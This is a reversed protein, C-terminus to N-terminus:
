AEVVAPEIGLILHGPSERAMNLNVTRYEANMRSEMIEGSRIASDRDTSRASLGTSVGVILCGFM